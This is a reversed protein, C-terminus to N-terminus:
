WIQVNSCLAVRQMQAPQPLPPLLKQYFPSALMVPSLDLMQQWHKGLLRSLEGFVQDICEEVATFDKPDAKRLRSWRRYNDLKDPRPIYLRHNEDQLLGVVDEHIFNRYGSVNIAIRAFGRNDDVPKSKPVCEARASNFLQIVAQARNAANQLSSFAREPRATDRGEVMSVSIFCKYHEQAMLELREDIDARIRGREDRLTFIHTQWFQEYLPFHKKVDPWRKQEQADGYKELTATSMARYM